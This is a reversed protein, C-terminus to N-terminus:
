AAASEEALEPAPVPMRIIHAKSSVAQQLRELLSEPTEDRLTWTISNNLHVTLVDIPPQGKEVVERNPTVAGIWDPRLLAMRGDSRRVEIWYNLQM